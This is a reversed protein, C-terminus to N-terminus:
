HELQRGWNLTGSALAAAAKIGGFIFNTGWLGQAVKEVDCFAVAELAADSVRTFCDLESWDKRYKMVWAKGSAVLSAPTRADRSKFVACSCLYAFLEEDLGLLKARETMRVRLTGRVVVDGRFLWVLRKGIWGLISYTLWGSLGAVVIASWWM